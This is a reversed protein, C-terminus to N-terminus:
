LVQFQDLLRELTEDDLGIRVLHYIKSMGPVLIHTEALESDVVTIKLSSLDSVIIPESTETSPEHAGAQEWWEVLSLISANDEVYVWFGAFESDGPAEALQLVNTDSGVTASLPPPYLLTYGLGESTFSAWVGVTITLTEPLTRRGLRILVVGDYTDLVADSPIDFNLQVDYQQDAVVNAVTSPQVSLFPALEPVPEFVIDEVDLSSSFTLDQTLNEGPSLVVEVQNDSWTIRPQRRQAASEPAMIPSPSPAPSPSEGTLVVVGGLAIGAVLSIFVIWKALGYNM